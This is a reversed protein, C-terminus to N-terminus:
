SGDRIDSSSADVDPDHLNFDFEVDLGNMERCMARERRVLRKQRPKNAALVNRPSLEVARAPGLGHRQSGHAPWGKQIARSRSTLIPGGTM